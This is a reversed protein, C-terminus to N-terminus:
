KPLNEPKVDKASLDGYIVRYMQSGKPRFWLVATKTDGLKVGQGTYHWDTTEALVEQIRGMLVFIVSNFYKDIEEQPPPNDRDLTAYPTDFHIAGNQSNSGNYLFSTDVNPDIDKIAQLGLSSPYKGGSLVTWRRFVDIVEQENLVNESFSQAPQEQAQNTFADPDFFKAEKQESYDFFFDGHENNRPDHFCM